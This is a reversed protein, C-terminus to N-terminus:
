SEDDSETDAETEGDDDPESASDIDDPEDATEVDGGDSAQSEVGSGDAARPTGSVTDTSESVGTVDFHLWGALGILSAVAGGGIQLWEDTSDGSGGGSGGDPGSPPEVASDPTKPADTPTDTPTPTDAPTPTTTTGGPDPEEVRFTSSTTDTAGDNDTVTLEVYYSDAQPITFPVTLGSYSNTGILWQYEVIEGDPDSSSGASFIVTDGPSPDSPSISFDATPAQGAIPITRVTTDVNGYKDEVTLRIDQNGKSPFAYSATQGDLTRGDIEWQYSVILSSPRSDTANFTIRDGASPREPALSIVADVSQEIAFLGRGRSQAYLIGDHAAPSSEIPGGTDFRWQETGETANIAYVSGDESGAYVIGNAVIPAHVTDGTEYSWLESGGAIDLAYLVGDGCGVFLTEDAVAVSSASSSGSGYTWQETGESAALASVRGTADSVYVTGDVVSPASEVAGECRYQWQQAGSELDRAYVFGGEDGYYVTGDAIACGATIPDFRDTRYSWAEGGTELDLAYIRGGQSGAVVYEDAVSPSATVRGNTSVVWATEGDSRNLGYIKTEAGVYVFEGYVAPTSTITSQWRAEWQQSGNATDVAYVDDDLGVFVTEDAVVPSSGRGSSRFRWRQETNLSPGRSEPGHGSKAADYGFQPWGTEPAISTTEGRGVRSLGALLPASGLGLLYRRRTSQIDQTM